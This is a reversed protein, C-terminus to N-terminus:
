AASGGGATFFSAIIRITKIVIAATMSALVLAIAGGIVGWPVFAGTNSAWGALTSVGSSLNGVLGSVDPLAPLLGLVFRVIGTLIGVVAETLM